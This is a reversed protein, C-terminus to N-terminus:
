LVATLKRQKQKQSKKNRHLSDRIYTDTNCTVLANIKDVTAVIWPDLIWEFRPDLSSSCRAFLLTLVLDTDASTKTISSGDAAPHSSYKCYIPYAM